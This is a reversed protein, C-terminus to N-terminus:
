RPICILLANKVKAPLATPGQTTGSMPAIAGLAASSFMTSIRKRETELCSCSNMGPGTLSGMGGNSKVWICLNLLDCGTAHGAALMEGMHRWDMCAYIIAGGFAYSCALEFTRTLFRAFEDETM